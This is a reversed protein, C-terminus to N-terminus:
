LMKSSRSTNILCNANYPDSMHYLNTSTDAIVQCSLAIIHYGPCCVSSSQCQKSSSSRSCISNISSIFHSQCLCTSSRLQIHCYFKPQTKTNRKLLLLLSNKSVSTQTFIKKYISVRDKVCLFWTIKLCLFVNNNQTCFDRNAPKFVLLILHSLNPHMVSNELLLLSSAASSIKKKGFVTPNLLVFVTVTGFRSDERCLNFNPTAKTQSLGLCIISRLKIPWICDWNSVRWVVASFVCDEVM